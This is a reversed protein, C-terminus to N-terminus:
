NKRPPMQARIRPPLFVAFNRFGWETAQREFWIADYPVSSPRHCLARLNRYWYRIASPISVLFPMLPGFVINQLSHGAEHLCIHVTAYRDTLFFVGMELGGWRRKGVAMFFCPGFRHAKHGTLRLIFFVVAGFLTMPLGWTFSLLYFFFRNLTYKKPEM